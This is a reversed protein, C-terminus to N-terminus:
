LIIQLMFIIMSEIKELSKDETYEQQGLQAERKGDPTFNVVFGTKTTLVFFEYGEKIPKNKMQHTEYSRGFFRIM